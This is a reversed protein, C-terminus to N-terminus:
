LITVWSSLTSTPTVSGSYIFGTKGLYKVQYYVDNNDNKVVSSIVEVKKGAPIMDIVEGDPTLLFPNDQLIKLKDGAQALQMEPIVAWNTVTRTGSLQGSYIFGRHGNYTVEYYVYDNSGQIVVSHVYLLSSDPITTLWNGGPAHRLNIATSLQILDGAEAHIKEPLEGDLLVWEKLTMNNLVKGGYIYGKGGSFAVQYYVSNDSGQIHTSFVRRKKNNPVVGIIEGDPADRLSIGETPVIRVKDAAQAILVDDLESYNAPTTWNNHDDVSGAYIYGIRGNERIMYYRSQSNTDRVVYDLVQYVKGALSSFGMAAGGPTARVNINLETRITQGVTALGTVAGAFCSHKEHVTKTYTNTANSSPSLSTGTPSGYQIDLCVMDVPDAVCEFANNEFRCAEGSAMNIQRGSWNAPDEADIPELAVCGSAGEMFCPIDLSTDHNANTIYNLWTQGDYKDAFGIDNRAWYDNPDTWRCIKSAGGNYVGYASRSRDRWNTASSVCSATAASEWASYFLEMGYIINEFIHWGKGEELKPFHWRDDIQVMGHGHGYDGRIMKINGDIGDRYHTWFTEQHAKAFNARQWASVEDSSADPKRSLLYYEVADRLMAHVELMYRERETTRSVNDDFILPLFKDAVYAPDGWPEVDCASPVRGFNWEGGVRNNCLYYDPTDHPAAITSFSSYLGALGVLAGIWRHTNIKLTKM